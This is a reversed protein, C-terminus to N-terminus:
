LRQTKKFIDNGCQIPDPLEPPNPANKDKPPPFHKALSKYIGLDDLLLLPQKNQGSKSDVFHNRRHQTPTQTGWHKAKHIQPISYIKPLTTIAATGALVQQSFETTCTDNILSCLPEQTFVKGEAQSFAHLTTPTCQKRIETPNYISKWQPKPNTSIIPICVHSIGRTTITQNHEESACLLMTIRGSKELELNIAQMQHRQLSGCSLNTWWSTGKM